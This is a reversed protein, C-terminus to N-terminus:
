MAVVIMKRWCYFSFWSHFSCWFRQRWRRRGLAEAGGWNNWVHHHWRCNRRWWCTIEHGRKWAPRQELGLCVWYNWSKEFRRITQSKLKRLKIRLLFFSNTITEHVFVVTVSRGDWSDFFTVFYYFLTRPVQSVDCPATEDPPSAETDSIDNVSSM